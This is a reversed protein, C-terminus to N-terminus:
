LKPVPICIRQAILQMIQGGVVDPFYGLKFYLKRSLFLATGHQLHLHSCIHDTALTLFRLLTTINLGPPASVTYRCQDRPQVLCDLCRWYVWDQSELTREMSGNWLAPTSHKM